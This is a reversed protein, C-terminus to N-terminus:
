ARRVNRDAGEPHPPTLLGVPTGNVVLDGDQEIITVPKWRTNPKPPFPIVKTM